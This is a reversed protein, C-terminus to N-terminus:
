KPTEKPAPTARTPALAAIEDALPHLAPKLPDRLADSLILITDPTAAPNAVTRWIVRALGEADPLRAYVRLRNAQMAADQATCIPM